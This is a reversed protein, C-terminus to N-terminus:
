LLRHFEFPLHFLGLTLSDNNPYLMGHKLIDETLSPAPVPTKKIRREIVPTPPEVKVDISAHNSLHEKSSLKSSKRPPPPSANTVDNLGSESAVEWDAASRRRAKEREKGRSAVSTPLTDTEPPVQVPSLVPNFETLSRLRQDLLSPERAPEEAPASSQVGAMPDLPILGSPRSRRNATSTSSVVPTGSWTLSLSDRAKTAAVSSVRSSLSSPDLRASSLHPSRHPSDHIDSGGETIRSMDPPRSVGAVSPVLQRTTLPKPDLPPTTTDPQFLILAM